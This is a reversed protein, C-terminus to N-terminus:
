PPTFTAVVVSIGVGLSLSEAVGDPGTGGPGQLDLDPVFLAQFLPSAFIEGQTVAGDANSDYLDVFTTNGAAISAIIARAFGPKVESDLSAPSIGGALRGSGGASLPLQVRADLLEVLVPQDGPAFVMWVAARGPGASLNGNATAGTLDFDTPSGAAVSLLDTGDFAPPGQTPSGVLIQLGVDTANQLNTTQVAYLQPAVGSTVASANLTAIDVSLVIFQSVISGFQNDPLGDCDLDVAYANSMAATTPLSLQRVVFGHHAGIPNTPGGPASQTALTLDLFEVRREALPALSRSFPNTV